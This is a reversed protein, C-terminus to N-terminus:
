LLNSNFLLGVRYCIFSYSQLVIFLIFLCSFGSYFFCINFRVEVSFDKVRNNRKRFAELQNRAQSIRQDQHHLHYTEGFRRNVKMLNCRTINWCEKLLLTKETSPVFTEPPRQLKPTQISSM